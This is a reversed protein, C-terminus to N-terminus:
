PLPSNVKLYAITCEKDLRVDFCIVTDVLHWLFDSSFFAESVIILLLEHPLQSSEPVITLSNELM